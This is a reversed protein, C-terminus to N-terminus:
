KRVGVGTVGLALSAGTAGPAGPAAALTANKMARNFDVLNTKAIGLQAARFGPVQM